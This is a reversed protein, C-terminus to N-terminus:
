CEDPSPATGHDKEPFMRFAMIDTRDCVQEASQSINVNGLFLTCSLSISLGNRIVKKLVDGAQDTRIFSSSTISRAVRGVTCHACKGLRSQVRHRLTEVCSRKM